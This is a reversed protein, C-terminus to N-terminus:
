AERKREGGDNGKGAGWMGENGTRMVVRRRGWWMCDDGLM